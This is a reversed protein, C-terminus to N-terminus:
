RKFRYSRRAASTNVRRLIMIAEELLGTARTNAEELDISVRDHEVPLDDESAFRTFTNVGPLLAVLAIKPQTPKFADSKIPLRSLVSFEDFSIDCSPRSDFSFPELLDRTLKAVLGLGFETIDFQPSLCSFVGYWLLASPFAERLRTLLRFHSFSGPLIQNCFFAAAISDIDSAIPNSRVVELIKSFIEVRSDFPGTLLERALPALNPYTDCLISSVDSAPTEVEASRRIAKLLEPEAAINEHLLTSHILKIGTLVLTTADARAM